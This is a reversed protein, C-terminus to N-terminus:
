FGKFFMQYEIYIAKIHPKKCTFYILLRKMQKNWVIYLRQAFLALLIITGGLSYYSETEM